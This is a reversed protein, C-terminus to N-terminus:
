LWGQGGVGLLLSPHPRSVTWVYRVYGSIPQRSDCASILPFWGPVIRADVIQFPKTRPWTRNRSGPRSVLGDVFAWISSFGEAARRSSVM